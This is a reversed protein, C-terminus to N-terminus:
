DQYYYDYTTLIDQTFTWAENYSLGSDEPFIIKIYLTKPYKKKLQQLQQHMASETVAKFENQGPLKMSLNVAGASKSKRVEVVYKGRPTRAPRVLKDYKM